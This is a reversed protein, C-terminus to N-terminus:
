GTISNIDYLRLTANDGVYITEEPAITDLSNEKPELPTLKSTSDKELDPTHTDKSPEPHAHFYSFYSQGFKM